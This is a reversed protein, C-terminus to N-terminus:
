DAKKLLLKKEERSRKFPNCAATAWTKHLICSDIKCGGWFSHTCFKSVSDCRQFIIQARKPISPVAMKVHHPYITSIMMLSRLQVLNCGLSKKGTDESLPTSCNRTSFYSFFVARCVVICKDHPLIMLRSPQVLNARSKGLSGGMDMESLDIKQISFEMWATPGAGGSKIFTILSFSNLIIPPTAKPHMSFDPPFAIVLVADQRLAAM